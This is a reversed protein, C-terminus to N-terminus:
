LGILSRLTINFKCIPCQCHKKLWNIICDYHFVHACPLASVKDGIEFESLCIVCKRNNDNQNNGQNPNNRIEKVESVPLFKIITKVDKDKNRLDPNNRIFNQYEQENHLIDNANNNNNNSDGNSFYNVVRMATRGISPGNLFLCGIVDVVTLIGDAHNQLFTEVNESTFEFNSDGINPENKDNAIGLIKKEYAKQEELKNRRERQEQSLSNIPANLLAEDRDNLKSKDEPFIYNKINKVNSVVNNKVKEFFSEEKENSKQQRQNNENIFNIHNITPQDIENINIINNQNEPFLFFDNDENNKYNRNINNNNINIVNNNNNNKNKIINNNVKNKEPKDNKPINNNIQIGFNNINYNGLGNEQEDLRHCFIHDNYESLALIANCFPCEKINNNEFEKTKSSYIGKEM